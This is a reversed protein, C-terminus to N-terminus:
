RCCQLILSDSSNWPGFTQGHDIARGTEDRGTEDGHSAMETFLLRLKLCGCAANLQLAICCEALSTQCYRELNVDSPSESRIEALVCALRLYKTTKRLRALFVAIYYSWQAVVVEKWIGECENGIVRGIM